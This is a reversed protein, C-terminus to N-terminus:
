KNTLRSVIISKRWLFAGHIALVVCPALIVNEFFMGVVFALPSDVDGEGDMGGNAWIFVLREGFRYLLPLCIVVACLCSYALNSRTASICGFWIVVLFLTLILVAVLNVTFINVLLMYSLPLTLLVTFVGYIIKYLKMSTSVALNM